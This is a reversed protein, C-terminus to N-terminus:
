EVTVSKALNRPRDVNYGKEIGVYYAFLQMPIIALIAQLPELAKPIYIVDDALSKIAENGETAIAIVPGKRARIEEINSVTKEYVSDDPAIAVTPFNEDIMAIPGHKMEGAGYGEAHIYTVEKLKLAGEFAGAFNYKRGIFLMDNSKAYKKAIAQIAERNDLIAQAQAPLKAIGEALERGRESSLQRQAGLYLGFLALVEMQSLIAKTSAVSIEPGAHNYVGTDTARAITSGVVNVIGITLHGRRKAEKVSALTDATEGSQSVALIATKDDYVHARYRFESGLAIECPIGAYEEIVYKGYQGAYSASGCAVIVLREIKELEEAHKILGGLVARGEKTILRGRASNELAEPIEMMEKLMFHEYGKRAITGADWEITQPSRNLQSHDLDRIDYNGPTVIVYEGDELYVIKNTHRVIASADSAICMEGNGVGIAIPSGMAAAYITNPNNKEIVAVGYTGRVKDLACGLAKPMDQMEKFCEGLVHALVETDTESSFTHGKKLLEDKLEKYNEIIGNHVLHLTGDQDTHPHANEKSPVGHTAWRTHAIGATAKAEKPLEERLKKVEGVERFLGDDVTYIGASDYGRYELAELGDVLIPIAKKEGTYAFIGCM